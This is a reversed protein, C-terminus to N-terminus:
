PSIVPGSEPWCLQSVRLWGLPDYDAAV